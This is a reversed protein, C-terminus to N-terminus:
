EKLYRKGDRDGYGRLDAGRMEVRSSRWLHSASGLGVASWWGVYMCGGGFIDSGIGSDMGVLVEWREPRGVLFVRVSVGVEWCDAWTSARKAFGSRSIM